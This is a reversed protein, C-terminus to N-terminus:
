HLHHSANWCLGSSFPSGRDIFVGEKAKLYCAPYGGNYSYGVCKPNAMCLSVCDGASGIDQDLVSIDGGYWDTLPIDTCTSDVVMIGVATNNNGGTLAPVAPQLVCAAQANSADYLWAACSALFTFCLSQCHDETKVISSSFM